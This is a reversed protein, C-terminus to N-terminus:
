RGRLAMRFTKEIRSMDAPEVGAVAAFTRWRNVAEAVEEIARKARVAKVGVNSAFAM